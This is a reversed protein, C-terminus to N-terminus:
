RRENQESLRFVVLRRKTHQFSAERDNGGKSKEDGKQAYSAGAMSFRTTLSLAAITAAPPIIRKM